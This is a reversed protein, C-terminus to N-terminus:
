RGPHAAHQFVAWTPLRPPMEARSRSSEWRGARDGRRRGAGVLHRRRELPRREPASSLSRPAGAVSRVPTAPNRPGSPLAPLWPLFERAGPTEQSGRYDPHAARRDGLDAPPRPLYGSLDFRGCTDSGAPVRLDATELSPRPACSSALDSARLCGGSAPEAPSGARIGWCSTRPPSFLQQEGFRSLRQLRPSNWFCWKELKGARQFRKPPAHFFHRHGTARWGM